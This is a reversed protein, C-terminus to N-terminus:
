LIGDFFGFSLECFSLTNACWTDSLSSAFPFQIIRKMTITNNHHSLSGIGWWLLMMVVLLIMRLWLYAFLWYVCSFAWCWTLFVIFYWKVGMFIVMIFLVSLLLHQCLHPCISVQICQQHFHLILTMESFWDEFHQIYVMHRLLEVELNIALLFSFVDM